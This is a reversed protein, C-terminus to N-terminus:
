GWLRFGVFFLSEVDRSTGTTTQDRVPMSLSIVDVKDCDTASWRRQDAASLIRLVKSLLLKMAASGSVDFM